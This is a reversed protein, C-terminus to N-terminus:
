LGNTSFYLNIIDKYSPAVLLGSLANRSFLSAINVERIELRELPVELKGKFAFQYSPITEGPFVFRTYCFLTLKGPSYPKLGQDTRVFIEEALERRLAEELTDISDERFDQSEVKGTPVSWHSPFRITPDGDRFSMLIRNDSAEAILGVGAWIRRSDLFM